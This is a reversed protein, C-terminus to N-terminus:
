GTRHTTVKDIQHMRVHEPMADVLEWVTERQRIHVILTSTVVCCDDPSYILVPILYVGGSVDPLLVAGSVLRPADPSVGGIIEVHPLAAAAARILDLQLSPSM